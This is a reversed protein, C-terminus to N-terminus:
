RVLMMKRSEIYQDTSLRYFYVGSAVPTGSEDTGNWDVQKTGASLPENVLTKVRQGLSNYVVLEVASRRKLSFEITTSPNFPNPYCRSLAYDRPLDDGPVDVVGTALDTLLTIGWAKFVGDNGDVGDTITLIWNGDPDVDAFDSLQGNARFAGTYPADGSSVPNGIGDTFVTGELNAGSIDGPAVLVVDTGGHSLRIDLEEVAAHEISDVMVRVGVVSHGDLLKDTIVIPITDASPADDDIPISLDTVRDTFLDVGPERDFKVMYVTSNSDTQMMGSVVYGGDSAQVVNYPVHNTGRDYWRTTWLTDGDRDLKILCTQWDGETYWNAAVVYNGDVTEICGEAQEHYVDGMTATWDVVGNALVKVVHIDKDEGNVQKYGCLLFGGDSTQIIDRASEFFPENAGYPQSWEEGGVANFKHIFMDYDYDDDFSQTEGSLVFGGDSTPASCVVNDADKWAIYDGWEEIGLSDTKVLYTDYGTVSQWLRGTAVFGRDPLQVLTIGSESEDTGFASSWGATGTSSVTTLYVDARSAYPVDQARIGVLVFDGSPTVVMDQAFENRGAQGVQCTWLTDGNADTRIVYVQRYGDGAPVCHGGLVFGSDPLEYMALAGASRGYLRSWLTDPAQAYSVAGILVLVFVLALAGFSDSVRKV